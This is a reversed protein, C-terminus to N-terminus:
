AAVVTMYKFLPSEVMDSKLSPEGLHLLVARCNTRLTPQMATMPKTIRMTNNGEMWEDISARAVLICHGFLILAIPKAM